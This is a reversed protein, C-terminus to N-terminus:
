DMIHHLKKKDASSPQHNFHMLISALEKADDDAHADNLITKLKAKDASGVSHQMNIMANALVRINASKSNDAIEQLKKKEAASPFHNVHSLIQAISKIAQENKDSDPSAFSSLSFILTIALLFGCLLHKKAKM